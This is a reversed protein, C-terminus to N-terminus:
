NDKKMRNSTMRYIISDRGPDMDAIFVAVAIVSYFFAINFWFLINFIVPYNEDYDKSLNLDDEATTAVTDDAMLSRSRRVLNDGASALTGFLVRSHYAHVFSKQLARVAAAALQEAEETAPSDRGHLDALPRLGPLQVWWVDPAGDASVGSRVKHALEQLAMLQEVFQRDETVNLSLEALLPPPSASDLSGLVDELAEWKGDALDIRLLKSAGASDREMVRRSVRAWVAEEDLAGRLPVVTGQADPPLPADRVVMVVAEAFHFPDSVVLGDWSAGKSATFGLTAILVDHLNRTDLPNEGSFTTSKPAHQVLLEGARSVTILFALFYSIIYSMIDFCDGKRKWIM